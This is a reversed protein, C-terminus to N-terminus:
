MNDRSIIFPPTSKLNSLLSQEYENKVTRDFSRLRGRRILVHIWEKSKEGILARREGREMWDFSEDRWVYNTNYILMKLHGM